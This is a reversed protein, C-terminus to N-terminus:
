NEAYIEETLRDVTAQLDDPVLIENDSYYMGDFPVRVQEWDYEKCLPYEAMLKVIDAKTLDTGTLYGLLTDSDQQMRVLDSLDLSHILSLLVTRQRSTREFDSDGVSRNRMHMCAEEGNLHVQSGATVSTGLHANIFDAEAQSLDVDVGGFYDILSAIGDFDVSACNDIHVGYCGTLTEELLDAGGLAYAANLKAVGYGPIDAWLDRMFSTLFIKKVDHNITVLMMVDSNGNWSADRRDSGILLINYNGTLGTETTSETEEAESGASGFKADASNGTDSDVTSGTEEAFAPMCSAMLMMACVAASVFLKVSKRGSVRM